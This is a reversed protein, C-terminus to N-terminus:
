QLSPIYILPTHGALVSPPHFHPSLTDPPSLTTERSVTGPDVGLKEAMKSQTYNEQLLVEIAGRDAATLQKYTM